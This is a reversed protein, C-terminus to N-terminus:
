AGSHGGEAPDMTYANDSVFKSAEEQSLQQEDPHADNMHDQVKRALAEDNAAELHEGCDCNLARM